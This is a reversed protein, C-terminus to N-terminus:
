STELFLQDHVCKFFNEHLLTKEVCGTVEETLYRGRNLQMSEIPHVCSAFSNPPSVLIGYETCTWPKNVM